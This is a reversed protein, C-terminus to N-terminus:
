PHSDISYASDRGQQSRNAPDGGPPPEGIRSRGALWPPLAACAALAVALAFRLRTRRGARGRLWALLAMAVLALEIAAVGEASLQFSLSYLLWLTGALLVFGLAQLAAAASAGNPQMAEGAPREPRAAGDPQRAGARALRAPRPLPLVGWCALALLLAAAALLATLRSDPPTWSAPAGASARSSSASGQDAGPRGAIAVERLAELALTRGDRQLGTATWAFSTRAPLEAGARKTRLPVHFTVGEPVARARPRGAEFAEHTELFLDAEAGARVGSVRVELAPGEPGNQLVGDTAVGALAGAPLPLRAWWREILPATQPDLEGRGAGRDQSGPPALPQELSLRYRYPVCDIECVVYDLDAVLALLALRNTGARGASGAGHLRARVPYVVEDQYGFAVLDGPLEFRRPAPWLLEPRSLGAVPAFILTPAFGADGSNKWYVHWHPALRFQLGMRLEGERPAVRWQSILRVRSQPNSAWAGAAGAARGPVLFLGLGAALLATPM